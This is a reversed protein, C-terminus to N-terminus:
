WSMRSDRQGTRAVIPVQLRLLGGDALLHELRHVDAVWLQVARRGAVEVTVPGDRRWPVVRTLPDSRGEDLTIDLRCRSWWGGRPTTLIPEGGEVLRLEAVMEADVDLRAAPDSAAASRFRLTPGDVWVHGAWVM